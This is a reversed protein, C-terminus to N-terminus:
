FWNKLYDKIGVKMFTVEGDEFINPNLLLPGKILNNNQSYTQIADM